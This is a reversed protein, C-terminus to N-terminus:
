QSGCPALCLAGSGQVLQDEVIQVQQQVATESDPAMVSLVIDPNEKAAALAGSRVSQWFESNMARCVFGIRVEGAQVAGAFLLSLLIAIGTTTKRM